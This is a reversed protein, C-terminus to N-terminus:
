VTFRRFGMRILKYIIIQGGPAPQRFAGFFTHSNKRPKLILDDLMLLGIYWNLLHGVTPVGLRWQHEWICNTNEFRRLKMTSCIKVYSLCIIEARLILSMHMFMADVDDQPILFFDLLSFKYNILYILISSLLRSCVQDKHRDGALM